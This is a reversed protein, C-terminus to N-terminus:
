KLLREFEIANVAASIGCSGSRIDNVYKVLKDHKDKLTAHESSLKHYTKRNVEVEDNAARLLRRTAELASKTSELECNGRTTTGPENVSETIRLLDEIDLLGGGAVGSNNVTDFTFYQGDFGTLRLTCGELIKMNSVLYDKKVRIYISSDVDVPEHVSEQTETIAELIVDAIARVKSM